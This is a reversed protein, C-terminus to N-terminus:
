GYRKKIYSKKMYEAKWRNTTDRMELIWDIARQESDTVTREKKEGRRVPLSRSKHVALNHIAGSRNKLTFVIDGIKGGNGGSLTKIDIVEFWERLFYLRDGPRIRTVNLQETKM